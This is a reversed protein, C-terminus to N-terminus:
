QAFQGSCNCVLILHLELTDASGGTHGAPLDFASGSYFRHPLLLALCSEALANCLSGFYGEREGARV